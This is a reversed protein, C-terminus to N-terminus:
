NSIIRSEKEYCHLYNYWKNPKKHQGPHKKKQKKKEIREGKKNEKRKSSLKCYSACPVFTSNGIYNVWKLSIAGDLTVTLCWKLNTDKRSCLLDLCDECSFYNLSVTNERAPIILFFFLLCTFKIDPINYLLLYIFYIKWYLTKRSSRFKCWLISPRCNIIPNESELHEKLSTNCPIIQQLLTM